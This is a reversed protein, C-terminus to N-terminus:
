PSVLRAQIRRRFEQRDILEAQGADIDAIRRRLETDWAAEADEDTPEDLSALLDYALRAREALPLGLALLRCDATADTTM